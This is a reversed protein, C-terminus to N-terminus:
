GEGHPMGVIAKGVGLDQDGFELTHIEDEIAFTVRQGISFVVM